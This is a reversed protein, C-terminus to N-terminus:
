RCNETVPEPSQDIAFLLLIRFRVSPLSTLLRRHSTRLLDAAALNIIFYHTVSRM